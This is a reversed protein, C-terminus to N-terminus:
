NSPIVSADEEALSAIMSRACSIITPWADNCGTSVLRGVAIGTGFSALLAPWGAPLMGAAITGVAAASGGAVGCVLAERLILGLYDLFNIEGKVFRDYGNAAGVAAGIAACVATGTKANSIVRQWSLGSSSGARAAVNLNHATTIGSSEISTGYRAVANVTEPTGIVRAGSAVYGPARMATARAGSVTDKLQLAGGGSLLIDYAPHCTSPNLSAWGDKWLAVIDTNHNLVYTCEHVIGKLQFTGGHRGLAWSALGFQYAEHCAWWHLPKPQNKSEAAM